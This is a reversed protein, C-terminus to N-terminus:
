YIIITESRLIEPVLAALPRFNQSCTARPVGMAGQPRPVSGTWGSGPFGTKGSIKKESKKAEISRKPGWPWGRISRFWRIRIRVPFDPKEFIRIKRKKSKKLKFVRCYPHRNVRRSGVLDGTGTGRYQPLTIFSDKSTRVLTNYWLTGFPCLYM